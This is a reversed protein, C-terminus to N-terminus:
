IHVHRRFVENYSIVLLGGYPPALRFAVDSLEFVSGINESSFSSSAKSVGNSKVYSVLANWSLYCLPCLAPLVAIPPREQKKTNHILQVIYYVYPMQQRRIFKWVLKDIRPFDTPRKCHRDHKTLNKSNRKSLLAHIHRFDDYKTLTFGSQLSLCGVAALIFSTMRLLFTVTTSINSLRIDAFRSSLPGATHRQLLVSYREDGASKTVCPRVFSRVFVVSGQSM